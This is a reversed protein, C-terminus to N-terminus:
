GHVLEERSEKQWIRTQKSVLLWYTAEKDEGCPIICLMNKLFPFQEQSNCDQMQVKLDHTNSGNTIHWSCVEM